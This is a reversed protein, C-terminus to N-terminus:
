IIIEVPFYCGYYNFRQFIITFENTTKEINIEPINNLSWTDGNQSFILSVNKDEEIQECNYSFIDDFFGEIQNVDYKKSSFESLQNSM